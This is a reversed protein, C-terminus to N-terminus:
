AEKPTEEPTAPESPKTEGEDGENETKIYQSNPVITREDKIPTFVPM